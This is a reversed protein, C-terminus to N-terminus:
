ISKGVLEDKQSESKNKIFCAENMMHTFIM